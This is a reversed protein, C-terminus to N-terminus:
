EDEGDVPLGFLARALRLLEDDEGREAARTLETIPRHLIKNVLARTLHEVADAPVAGLPGGPRAFREVEELRVREVRDRIEVITPVVGRGRYWAWFAEVEGELMAEARRADVHRAGRNEEVVSELDDVDYLYVDDLAHLAPDICRPVALDILFMPRRRREQLAAEIQAPGLIPTTTDVAGIILDATAVHREVRDLPVPIGRLQRAIRVAREFTRNAVMLSGVGHALLQRATLEGMLGAGILLVTKDDLREFIERALVAAASGISVAREAIRTDSRVRKAVSFSKHFCRHLIPGSAGVSAALEYQDKLQGLIQPEGLVMSDLSSAVRFLHRVADRGRHVYLRDRITGTDLDHERALFDPIDKEAAAVDASCTIVEVRNCTSLIVGESVSPMTVLARLARERTGNTFALRERLEVPATHHSLGVLVIGTEV